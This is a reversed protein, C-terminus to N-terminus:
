ESTPLLSLVPVPLHALKLCMRLLGAWRLVPMVLPFCRRIPLTRLREHIDSNNVRLSLQSFTLIESAPMSMAKWHM